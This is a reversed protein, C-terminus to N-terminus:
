EIIGGGLCYVGDYFIAYQGPAIGQDENALEVAMRNDEKLEINCSELHPGHRLKTKLEMKTPAQPIWNLGRVSFTNRARVKYQSKHVVYIKNAATDKKVVFWPGGSLGLGQRQGITHFWFGDHQGLVKNTNLDVIDGKKEGLHFKVFEPYKIKGLFCIGQSDKREKNPLDYKKALDRVQAKKYAGVPFWIRRLQAQSLYSLFYTQDKVADPSRMLWYQGNREEVQAYHGSVIKDYGEDIYDLFAGFKIRQNCLIDPSPTRGAKLESITHEVVKNYYQEQLPVIRLEVGAQECVARAYELDDEWPCNGLYQLEDELWIKLYFATVEQAGKEQALRLAVSSDVGGSLLAAIKM